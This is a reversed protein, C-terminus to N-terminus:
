LKKRFMFDNIGALIRTNNFSSVEVEELHNGSYVLNIAFYRRAGRLEHIYMLPNSMASSAGCKSENRFIGCGLKRRSLYRERGWAGNFTTVEFEDGTLDLQISMAKRLYCPSKSGNKIVCFSTIVDCKKFASYYQIVTLGSIEDELYVQLTEDAGFASPLPSIDPKDTLTHGCYRLRTVFSGNEYEALISSERFDYEGFSSIGLNQYYPESPASFLGDFNMNELKKGYYRIGLTNDKNVSLLLTTNQTDLKITKLGDSHM